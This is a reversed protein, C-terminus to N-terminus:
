CSEFRGRWPRSSIGAAMGRSAACERTHMASLAGSWQKTGAVSRATQHLQLLLHGLISHALSASTQALSWTRRSLPAVTERLFLNLREVYATNVRGSFGLAQLGHRFQVRTGCMVEAITHKLKRDQLVKHLRSYRLQPDVQWLARRQGPQDILRGFHATLAAFYASLGDTTLIPVCGLALRGKLRHVFTM